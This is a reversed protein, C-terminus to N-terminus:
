EHPAQDTVNPRPCVACPFPRSMCPANEGERCEFWWVLRRWAQALSMLMYLMNEFVTPREFMDWCEHGFDSIRATYRRIVDHGYKGSLIFFNRKEAKEINRQRLADAVIDGPTRVADYVRSVAEEAKFVENLYIHPPDGFIVCLAIQEAKPDINILYDITKGIKVTFKAGINDGEPNRAILEEADRLKKANCLQKLGRQLVRHHQCGRFVYASAADVGKWRYLLALGPGVGHVINVAAIVSKRAKARTRGCPCGPPCVHGFTDLGWPYNDMKGAFIMQETTLDTASNCSLLISMAHTQHEVTEPPLADVRKFQFGDGGHEVMSALLTMYTHFTKRSEFIHGIRVLFPVTKGNGLREVSPKTAVVASHAICNSSWVSPKAEDDGAVQALAEARQEVKCVICNNMVLSDKVLSIISNKCARVAASAVGDPDLRSQGPALQAGLVLSHKQMRDWVTSWNARPLGVSPSIVEATDMSVIETPPFIRWITETMNLIEMRRNRGRSELKKKASEVTSSDLPRGILEALMKGFTQMDLNELDKDVVGRVWTSADDWIINYITCDGERNLFRGCSTAQSDIFSVLGRSMDATVRKRADCEVIATTEGVVATFRSKKAVRTTLDVQTGVGFVDSAIQRQRPVIGKLATKQVQKQNTKQRTASIKLKTETSHRIGGRGNGRRRGRGRGRGRGHGDGRGPRVGVPAPPEHLEDIDGHEFAELRAAFM